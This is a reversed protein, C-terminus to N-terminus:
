EKMTRIIEDVKKGMEEDFPIHIEPWMKEEIENVITEKESREEPHSVTNKHEIYHTTVTWVVNKMHSKMMMKNNKKLKETNESSVTSKTAELKLNLEQMRKKKEKINEEMEGMRVTLTQLNAVVKTIFDENTDEDIVVMDAVKKEQAKLCKKMFNTSKELSIIEKDLLPLTQRMDLSSSEIHPVTTSAPPVTDMSPFDLPESSVTTRPPTAATPAQPLVSRPVSGIPDPKPPTAPPSQDVTTKQTAEINELKDFLSPVDCIPLLTEDSHMFKKEFARFAAKEESENILMLSNQASHLSLACLAATTNPSHSDGRPKKTHVIPPRLYILAQQDNHCKKGPEAILYILHGLNTGGDAGRCVVWVFNREICEMKEREKKDRVVVLVRLSQSFSESMFLGLATERESASSVEVTLHSRRTHLDLTSSTLQLQQIEHQMSFRPHGKPFMELLNKWFSFDSNSVFGGHHLVSIIFCNLNSNV